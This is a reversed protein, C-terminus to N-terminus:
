ARGSTTPTASALDTCASLHCMAALAQRTKRAAGACNGARMYFRAMSLANFAEGHLAIPDLHNRGTTPTRTPAIRGTSATTDAM